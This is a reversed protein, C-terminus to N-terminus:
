KRVLKKIKEIEEKKLYRWKGYEIGDLSINIIRIRKLKVVEYGLAKCMKRIQRNLGQTLILPIM